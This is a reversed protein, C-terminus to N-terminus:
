RKQSFYTNTHYANSMATIIQDPDREGRGVLDVAVDYPLDTTFQLSAGQSVKTSGALNAAYGAVQLITSMNERTWLGYYQRFMQITAIFAAHATEGAGNTNIPDVIFGPLDYIYPQGPDTINDIVSCGKAGRTILGTKISNFVPNWDNEGVGAKNAESESMCIIDVIGQEIGSVIHPREEGIAQAAKTNLTWVFMSPQGRRAMKYNKATDLITTPELSTAIMVESPTLVRDRLKDHNPDFYDRALKGGGNSLRFGQREGDGTLIVWTQETHASDTIQPYVNIPYTDEAYDIIQRAEDDLGVVCAFNVVQPVRSEAMAIAACLGAGGYNKKELMQATVFEGISDSLPGHYGAVPEVGASGAVGTKHEQNDFTSLIESM